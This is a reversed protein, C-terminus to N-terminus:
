EGCSGKLIRAGIACELCRKEDCYYQKLQLLAQTDAANDAHIGAAHWGSIIRNSEPPLSGIWTMAREQLGPQAKQQGYCYLLPLLTNIVINRVMQKGPLFPRSVPKDFRYHTQWYPSPQVTLLQELQQLDKAALVHSFLHTRRHLLAALLAIRLTPFAAPRMRLWKWAHGPLPQLQYKHRLYRYQRQLDQPYPDTFTGELLGAQGFLLAEIVELSAKNRLLIRLPLSQALQLFAGANVPQGFGQALGQYCTEEWDQRTQRLWAQLDTTKREWRELLLRDSWSKWTLSNTKGAQQGCPVFDISGHLQQYRRLLLKSIRPQLVICPLSPIDTPLDQDFVVHLIVHDYHPNQPHRHKYWDSAKLHIEVNGAWLTHGIRIRADSFDPGAHRNWHGTSILQVPEGATTCLGDANFLRFQWIFQLLHESLPPAPSVAVPM